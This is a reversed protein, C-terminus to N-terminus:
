RTASCHGAGGLEASGQQAGVGQSLTSASDSFQWGKRRDRASRSEEGHRAVEGSDGAWWRPGSGRGERPVVGVTKRSRSDAGTELDRELGVKRARKGV